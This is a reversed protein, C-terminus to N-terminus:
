GLHLLRKLMLGSGADCAKRKRFREIRLWPLAGGFLTFAGSEYFAARSAETLRAEWWERSSVL